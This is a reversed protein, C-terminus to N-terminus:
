RAVSTLQAQQAATPAPFSVDLNQQWQQIGQAEAASIKQQAQVKGLYYSSTAAVSSGAIRQQKMLQEIMVANLQALAQVAQTPSSANAVAQQVVQVTDADRQQNGVDFGVTQLASLLSAKTAAASQQMMSAYNVTPAYDPYLTQLRQQSTSVTAALNNAQGIMSEISSLDSQVNSQLAQPYTAFRSVNRQIEVAQNTMAVYQNYLSVWQNVSNCDNWGSLLNLCPLPPITRLSQIIGAPGAGPIGYTQAAAPQGILGLALVGIAVRKMM